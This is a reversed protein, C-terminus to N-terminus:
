CLNDVEVLWSDYERSNDIIVDAFPLKKEIPWQAKIRVEAEKKSLGDRKMLRKIQQNRTCNVIWIENCLATFKAEFLLPIILVIVHANKRKDLEEKLRKQVIPHILQEIWLRENSDAFIIKSLASRNIGPPNDKIQDKIADGYRELITTTSVKGPELAEHAYADADLIPFGKIKKLFTGISTKGSAIGGTLGIRRQSGHWRPLSAQNHIEGTM